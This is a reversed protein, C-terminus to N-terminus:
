AAAAGMSSGSGMGPNRYQSATITEAMTRATRTQYFAGAIALAVAVILWIVSLGHERYVGFVGDNLEALPVIGLTVVLGAIAAGAGAIATGAIVLVAPMGTVLFGVAFLGGVILALLFTIWGEASLGIWTLVGLGVQYGLSAGLLIVAVWYYLYSFAAFLIGLLLAVVWGFTTALFVDGFIYTIANAGVVFGAFFGWIPLLILFLRFGMFAFASGVVLALLGVLIGELTM